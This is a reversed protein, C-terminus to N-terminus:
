TKQITKLYKRYNKKDIDLIAKIRRDRAIADFITRSPAHEYTLFIIQNGIWDKDTIKIMRCAEDFKSGCDETYEIEFPSCYVSSDGKKDHFTYKVSWKNLKVGYDDFDFELTTFEKKKRDEM